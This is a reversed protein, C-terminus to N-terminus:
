NNQNSAIELAIYNNKVDILQIILNDLLSIISQKKILVKTFINEIALINTDIKETLLEKFKELGYNYSKNNSANPDVLKIDYILDLTRKLNHVELMGSIYSLHIALVSEDVKENQEIKELEKKFWVKFETYNSFKMNIGGYIRLRKFNVLNSILVNYKM